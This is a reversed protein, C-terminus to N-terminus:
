SDFQDLTLITNQAVPLKLRRNILYKKSSPPVGTGPRKFSIDHETLIHGAPLDANSVCSLRYEARSSNEGQTPGLKQTGLMKEATRIATVLETLEQPDCSFSHDPGELNKDTTFHKEIICAGMSAALCGAVIGDTHDSLGVPLDFVSKLTEMKRLHVDEPPTPYSSTCHLLILDMNGTAHFTTVAREIEALTAMGCSIVTPLGTEGMQTIIDLNTLYDSGNKLLPAGSKVLDDIGSQSTPTSTFIVGHQDCTQKLHGIFDRDIEYRKFMGYMSESVEKGASTYSYQQAKDSIFDETIYNQFKVCDAGAEAASAIMEAALQEDGNHNIGVEAIIFCPRGEGVAYNPSFEIPNM